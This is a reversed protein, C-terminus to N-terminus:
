NDLRVKINATCTRWFYLPTIHQWERNNTETYYTNEHLRIAKVQGFHVTYVIFGIWHVRKRRSTHINWQMPVRKISRSVSRGVSKHKETATKVGTEENLHVGLCFLPSLSLSLMRLLKAYQLTLIITNQLLNVRMVNWDLFICFNTCVCMCAYMSICHLLLLLNLLLLLFIVSHITALQTQSFSNKDNFFHTAQAFNFNIHTM